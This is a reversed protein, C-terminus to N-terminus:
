SIAELGLRRQCDAQVSFFIRLGGAAQLGGVRVSGVDINNVTFPVEARQTANGTGGVGWSAGLKFGIDGAVDFGVKAEKGRGLNGFFVDGHRLPLSRQLHRRDCFGTLYQLLVRRRVPCAGAVVHRRLLRRECPFRNRKSARQLSRGCDAATSQPLVPHPIEASVAASSDSSLHSFSVYAGIPGAVRFGVGLDLFHCAAPTPPPRSRRRSSTSRSPSRSPCGRPESNPASMLRSWAPM